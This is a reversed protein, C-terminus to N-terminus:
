DGSEAGKAIEPPGRDSLQLYGGTGVRRSVFEPSVRSAVDNTIAQQTALDLTASTKAAASLASDIALDPQCRFRRPTTSGLPVYSFRVCGAQTREFSAQGSLLSNEILNTERARIAGIVTCAALDVEGCPSTGDPAAIAVAADAGADISSDNISIVVQ